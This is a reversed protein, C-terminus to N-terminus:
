AEQKNQAIHYLKKYINLLQELEPEELLLYYNRIIYMDIENMKNRYQKGKEALSVLIERRNQLNIERTVYGTNELKKIIQSAASATIGFHNAIENVTRAREGLLELITMQRHTLESFQQDMLQSIDRLMLASIADSYHKIAQSIQTMDSM